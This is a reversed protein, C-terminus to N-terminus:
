PHLGLVVQPLDLLPLPDPNVRERVQLVGLRFRGVAGGLESAPVRRGAGRYCQADPVRCVERVRSCRTNMNPRGHRRREKKLNM